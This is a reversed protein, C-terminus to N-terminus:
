QAPTVTPEPTAQVTTAAARPRRVRKKGIYKVTIQREKLKAVAEWLEKSPVHEDRGIVVRVSVGIDATKGASNLMYVLDKAQSAPVTIQRAAGANFSETLWEIAPNTEVPNTWEAAQPKLATFDINAM